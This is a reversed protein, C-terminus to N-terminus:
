RGAIREFLRTLKDLDSENNYFHPSVRLRGARCSVVVGLERGAQVVTNHDIDGYTLSIIGSKDEPRESGYVQWGSAKQSVAYAMAAATASSHCEDCVADFVKSVGDSM